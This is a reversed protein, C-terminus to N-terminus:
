KDLFTKLFAGFPKARQVGKISWESGSTRNQVVPKGIPEHYGKRKQIKKPLWNFPLNHFNSNFHPHKM